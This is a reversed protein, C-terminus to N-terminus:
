AANQESFYPKLARYLATYRRYAKDYSAKNAAVPNFVSDNRDTTIWADLSSKDTVGLGLAALAAGGFAAEGATASARVQRGTVDAIIQLWFPSHAAGGVVPLGAELRTLGEGLFEQTQRLAFSVSELLARYIHANTHELTFGSMSGRANGDWIPSREGAFYPLITLGDCGPKISSAAAALREYLDGALQEEAGPAALMASSSVTDRFWRVIAGATGSGGHSYTLGDLVYPMSILGRPLVRQRHLYGWCMSTGIMAAHQGQTTMGASLTALAADIGGAVVPTGELLGLSRAGERHLKGVIECSQVLREPFHSFELGMEEILPRSWIKERIDFVGGINGASNVDCAVSGTLKAIFWANPPLFHRVKKFQDPENNKIWLIKGFGYYPDIGNGTIDFLRDEGIEARVFDCQAEARRDLWIICPRVPDLNADVPIGSGGYLSSITLGLVDSPSINAKQIVGSVAGILSELWVRGDQEAHLPKPTLLGHEVVHEAIRKGHANAIIAKSASTGVDVGILMAGAKAVM